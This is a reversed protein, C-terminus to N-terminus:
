IINKLFFAATKTSLIRANPAENLLDRLAGSHDMETHNVVIYYIDKLNILSKLKDIHEKTFKAHVSDILTPKDAQILYSNYTTGYRTQFVVDFVRLTASLVGVWHINKKIELTQM